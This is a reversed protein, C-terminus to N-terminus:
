HIFGFHQESVQFAPMASANGLLSDDYLVPARKRRPRVQRGSDFHMRVPSHLDDSEEEQGEYDDSSNCAMGVGKLIRPKTELRDHTQL